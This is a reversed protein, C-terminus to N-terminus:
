PDPAQRAQETEKPCPTGGQPQNTMNRRRRCRHCGPMSYCANDLTGSQWAAWVAEVDGSVFANVRIGLREAHERVRRSIAGCILVDVQQGGLFDLKGQPSEMPLALSETEGHPGHIRATGSVDFVPAIRGQWETIAAKV